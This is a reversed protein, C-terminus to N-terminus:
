KTLAIGNVYVTFGNTVIGSVRGVFSTLYADGTLVWSTGEELTVSAARATNATNVTGTFTSDGRLTLSVSSLEDAIIDGALQQNEAIISCDAGNKGAEGWGQTGDNGGARLLVGGESLSLAVGELYISADSNTVYFLDGNLASLAGCTMSFSGSAGGGFQYFAVCYPSLQTGTAASDPM